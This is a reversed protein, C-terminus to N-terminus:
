ECGVQATSKLDNFLNYGFEFHSQQARFGFAALGTESDRRKGNWIGTDLKAGSGTDFWIWEYSGPIVLESKVCRFQADKPTETYNRVVVDSLCTFGARPIPRWYTVEEGRSGQNDSIREYGIPPSLLEPDEELILAPTSPTAYGAVATQALYGRGPPVEPRWVSVDSKVGTKKDWYLRTYSRVPACRLKKGTLPERPSDAFASSVPNGIWEAPARVGFIKALTPALDWIRAPAAIEHDAKVGPGIIFFPISRCDLRDYAHNKEYGGHDAIVFFYTNGDAKRAADFLRGIQEDARSIAQLYEGGGWGHEHGAHDVFDLHVFLLNPPSQALLELARATAKEAGVHVNTTFTVSSEILDTFGDWEYIVAQNIGPMQDALAKFITTVRSPSSHENSLVGHLRPDSGAIMSAWNPASWVPLANQMEFTYSGLEKLRDLNPTHAHQAYVGGLGDVGVVVVKPTQASAANPSGILLTPILLFFLDKIM